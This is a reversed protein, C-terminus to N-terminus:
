DSYDRPGGGVMPKTLCQINRQLRGYLMSYSVIHIHVLVGMLM